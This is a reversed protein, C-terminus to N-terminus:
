IQWGNWFWWNEKSILRKTVKQFQQYQELDQNIDNLPLWVVISNISGQMSAWDQHPPVTHNLNSKAIDKNNSFLVPRTSIIPKKIGLMNLYSLLKDDTIEMLRNYASM